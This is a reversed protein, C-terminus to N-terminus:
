EKKKRQILAVLSLCGLVFWTVLYDASIRFGFQSNSTQVLSLSFSSFSSTTLNESQVELESNFSWNTLIGNESYAMDVNIIAKSTNLVFDELRLKYPDTATWYRVRVMGTLDFTAWWHHTDETLAHRARNLDDKGMMEHSRTMELFEALTLNNREDIIEQYEWKERIIDNIVKWEPEVIIPAVILGTLGYFQVTVNPYFINALELYAISGNPDRRPVFFNFISTAILKGIKEPNFSQKVTIKQGYRTVHTLNYTQSTNDIGSITMRATGRIDHSSEADHKLEGDGSTFSTSRSTETVAYELVLNDHWGRELAAAPFLTSLVFALVLGSALFRTLLEPLVAITSKM